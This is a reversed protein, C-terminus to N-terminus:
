KLGIFKHAQLSLSWEPRTRIFNMASAVDEPRLKGARNAIPQIFKHDIPLHGWSELLRGCIPDQQWLVKLSIMDAKRHPFRPLRRVHALLNPIHERVEDLEKKPSICIHSFMKPRTFDITGNTELHLTPLGARVLANLLSTDTQLLPEGGTLCVVPVPSRDLKNYQHNRSM